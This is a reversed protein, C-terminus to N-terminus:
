EQRETAGPTKSAELGLLKLEFERLPEAAIMELFDGMNKDARAAAARLRARFDRSVDVRLSVTDDAKNAM